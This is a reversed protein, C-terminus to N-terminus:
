GEQRKRERECAEDFLDSVSRGTYTSLEEAFRRAILTLDRMTKIYVVADEEITTTGIGRDIFADTIMMERFEDNGLLPAGLLSRVFAFHDGPM